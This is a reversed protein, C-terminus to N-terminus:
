NMHTNIAYSILSGDNRDDLKEVCGRRAASLPQRKELSAETSAATGATGSGWTAGTPNKM